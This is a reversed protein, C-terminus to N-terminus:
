YYTIERLTLTESKQGPSIGISYDKLWNGRHDYIYQTTSTLNIVSTMSITRKSIQNGHDNYQIFDESVLGGNENNKIIHVERGMSDYYHKEVLSLMENYYFNSLYDMGKGTYLYTTRLTLKQHHYSAQETVRGQQDYTYTTWSEKSGGQNYVVAEAVQGRNVNIKEFIPLGKYVATIIYSNDSDNYDYSRTECITDNRKTKVIKKLVNKNDYECIEVAVDGLDHHHIIKQVNGYHDFFIDDDQWFSTDRPGIDGHKVKLEKVPGHIGYAELNYKPNNQQQAFASCITILYFLIALLINKTFGFDSKSYNITYM